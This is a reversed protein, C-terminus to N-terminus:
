SGADVRCGVKALVHGRLLGRDVPSGEAGSISRIPVLLLEHRLVLVRHELGLEEAPRQRGFRDSGQQRPESLFTNRALRPLQVEGRPATSVVAVAFVGGGEDM